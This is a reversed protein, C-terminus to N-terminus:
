RKIVVYTSGPGSVFFQADLLAKAQSTPRAGFDFLTQYPARWYGFGQDLVIRVQSSGFDLLIQRSHPAAGVDLELDLKKAAAVAEIVARRDNEWQWDHSLRFPQRSGRGQLTSTVIRLPIKAGKVALQDRISSLGELALRVPLPSRLYRDSYCLSTLQGPRWAEIRQLEPALFNLFGPGFLSVPRDLQNTIELYATDAAPLLQMDDIPVLPPLDDIKAVVVPADQGTGWNEGLVSASPDRSLWALCEETSSYSAIIRAGNAFTRFEGTALELNWRTAADRLGLRQASDMQQFMHPALVLRVRAGRAQATSFVTKLPESRLAGLDFEKETIITAEGGRASLLRVIRDAAPRSLSAGPVACDDPEPKAQGALLEEAFLLAERRDVILQRRHLDSTLVCASCGTVCGPVTCDLIGRADSLVLELLEVANPAFGAGGSDKDYLFLSHTPQGLASQRPVATMGMEQAEVGLKRALAERLASILAWAAGASTLGSPQIEAVDTIIDHGLSLSRQMAFSKGNGPCIGDDNRKTFRLPAHGALPNGPDGTEAEARGCELCTAYGLGRGGGASAFFVLGDSSKRMRGLGPNLFPEWVAGRAVVKEPEPEVYTVEDTDAHPKKSADVTFGAPELYRRPPGLTAHCAPCNEPPVHSCDAAGCDDCEWFRKISQIEPVDSEGAPRLWNLTVGASKYVLGDVVVEAGPAYDRIAIDLNRSPYSRRKARAGDEDLQEDSEPKDNHVFPVVATPFGHGPLVARVALEKLLNDLCMRKLQFGVSSKAAEKEMQAAQAQLAQWEAVFGREAEELAARSAEFIAPDGELATGRVLQSLRAGLQRKTTPAIVWGLCEAVPPVKVRPQDLNPGCGFFDGVKTKALEGGAQAFWAALLFANAHRQVIQRSDLKVAPAKITRKLYAVPDRFTERELPTDRTYTLSSAFGQGRRGARGVRQRYNAISPPVNTMMISSVSGIDVGMEMTTSCNLVNIEGRKFAGEFARLRSAPQQASHEAARLYPSLLAIRDQLNSWVGKDRLATVEPDSALWDSLHWMDEASRPFTLPLRPMQVPEPPNLALISDQHHGFPTKGFALHALLRRTVPCIWASTVPAIKALSLDLEYGAGRPTMLPLLATWAALLIQDLENCDHAKLRDMGLTAQLVRVAPSRFSYKSSAQPWPRESQSQPREGAPLLVKRGGKRILWHVDGSAMRTAFNNRIVTDILGYLFQKWEDAKRGRALLPAPVKAETVNEIADFRLRALGMTELSNGRRPRRDLERMLLFEAFEEESERFRKERHQWIQRMWYGAQENAAIADRIQKWPVGKGAPFELEALESRKQQLLDQLEPLNAAAKELALIENQLNSHAQENAAKPALSQQVLHYVLARVFGRESNTQISAAFRATGQRSDTFSLLQRGEAPPRHAAEPDVFPPQIGEILLPTANGILFPAGFRIPRFLERKAASNRMDTGCAGCYEGRQLDRDLIQFAATTDRVADHVRGTTPEVQLTRGKSLKRAGIVCRWHASEAERQLEGEEQEESDPTERDSAAAFEDEDLLAATQILRGGCEVADLYPEGCETCIALELVPSKCDPCEAIREMALSGFPWGEPKTGSCGGNMCSWIGPVARLYNHVRIPLIPGSSGCEAIAEIVRNAPLETKLVTQVADQWSVPGAELNRLLSQVAPNKTLAERQDLDPETLVPSPAAAPLDLRERSGTVVHVRREPAGSIDRLFRRLDETVEKGEGITASTAVFRVDEPSVGFALLVRRLLLAIEAAASGVYGHAEDLIIWRLKGASNEILPRDIKRITMYELMTVNTVLIAPPDKRLTDRGLVQEPYERQESSQVSEPTLGNYLGFRIRGGFPQTWARLREQQSAILANLPYLALARVGSLRGEKEAERVLDDLVPMLFCETKGSGTGSSVLVSHPEPRTLLEWSEIQHLYPKASAPFRYPKNEPGESIARIVEAHLLEGSLDSFSRSGTKFPAAGELVPERVLAGEDVEVSRLRRRIEAALGEHNIASQGLVAEVARHRVMEITRFPGTFRPRADADAM